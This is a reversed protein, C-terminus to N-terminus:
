SFSWGVLAAQQIAFADAADLFGDSNVDAVLWCEPPIAEFVNCSRIIMDYVLQADHINLLGNTNVDGALWGDAEFGPRSVIIPQTSQNEIFDDDVLDGPDSLVVIGWCEESPIRYMEKGRFLLGGQIPSESYYRVLYVGSVYETACYPHLAPLTIIESRGCIDCVRHACGPSDSSPPSDVSVTMWVHRGVGYLRMERQGCIECFRQEVGRSLCTPLSISGWDGWLHDCAVADLFSLDSDSDDRYRKDSLYFWQGSVDCFQVAKCRWVDGQKGPSCPFAGAFNSGEGQLTMEVQISSENTTFDRELGDPNSLTSDYYIYLQEAVPLTAVEILMQNNTQDFMTHASEIMFGNKEQDSTGGNIQLDLMSFDGACRPYARKDYFYFWRKDKSYVQIASCMWNGVSCGSDVLLFGEFLGDGDDDRLPVQRKLGDNSCLYLYAIELNEANDFSAQYSVSDGEKATNSSVALYTIGFPSADVSALAVIPAFLAVFLAAAVAKLMTDLNFRYVFARWFSSQSGAVRVSDSM